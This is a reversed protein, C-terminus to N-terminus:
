CSETESDRKVEKIFENQSGVFHNHKFINITKKDNKMKFYLVNNSSYSYHNTKGKKFFVM